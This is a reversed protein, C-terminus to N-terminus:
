KGSEKDIDSILAEVVSTAAELRKNLLVGETRAKAVVLHLYPIAALRETRKANRIFVDGSLNCLTLGWRGGHKMYGVALILENGAIPVNVSVGLSLKDLSDELRNIAATFRDTSVNLQAAVATLDTM